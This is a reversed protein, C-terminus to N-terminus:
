IPPPQSRSPGRIHDLIKQIIDPNTMDAIVRMPWCAISVRSLLVEAAADSHALTPQGLNEIMVNYNFENSLKNHQKDSARYFKM